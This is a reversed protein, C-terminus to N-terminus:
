AQQHARSDGASLSQVIPSDQLSTRSPATPPGSPEPEGPSTPSSPLGNLLLPSAPSQSQQSAVHMRYSHLLRAAGPRPPSTATASNLWTM